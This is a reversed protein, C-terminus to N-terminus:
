LWMTLLGSLLLLSGPVLYKRPHHWLESQTRWGRIPYYWELGASGLAGLAAFLLALCLDYGSGGGRQLKLSLLFILDGILNVTFLFLGYSLVFGRKQGPLMRIAQELHPDCSLLICVPTNLTLLSFGIPLALSREIQGLFMPLGMAVGWLILTNVLYNRHHLLYRLFYSWLLDKKASKPKETGHVAEHAEYFTYPDMRQLFFLATLSSVVLVASFMWSSTFSFSLAITFTIWLLAKKRHQREGYIWATLLIGYLASLLSGTLEMTGWSSVALALALVFATRTLFTYAGLAGLYAATLRWRCFPLMFLNKGALAENKASLDQWMSGVTVAFVMLYLIAPAIPLFFGAQRLGWFILLCILISRGAKEYRSGFLYVMFGKWM